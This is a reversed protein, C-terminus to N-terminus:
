EIVIEGEIDEFREKMSTVVESPVGHVNEYLTNLRTIKVEPEVGGEKLFTLYSDLEWKRTFTNAVVVNKGELLLELIRKQAKKHVLTTEEVKFVYEGNVMRYDDAEVLPLEPYITKAYTTKGSGSVGRIVFLKVM